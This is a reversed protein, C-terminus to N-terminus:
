GSVKRDLSDLTKQLVTQDAQLKPVIQAAKGKDGTVAAGEYDTLDSSLTRLQRVADDNAQKVEAPPDLGDLDSALKDVSAKFSRLAPVREKLTAGSQVQAGAQEVSTRFEQAVKRFDQRYQDKQSKGCGALPIVLLAAILALRPLM